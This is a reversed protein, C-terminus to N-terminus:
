RHRQMGEVYQLVRELEEGEYEHQHAELYNALKGFMAEDGENGHLWDYGMRGNLDTEARSSALIDALTPLAEDGLGARILIGCAMYAVITTQNDLLDRALPVAREQPLGSLLQGIGDIDNDLVLQEMVERDAALDQGGDTTQAPVPATAM